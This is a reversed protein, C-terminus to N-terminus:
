KYLRQLSQTGSPERRSELDSFKKKRLLLTSRNQRIHSHNGDQDHLLVMKIFEHGEKGLLSWMSSALSICLQKLSFSFQFYYEYMYM